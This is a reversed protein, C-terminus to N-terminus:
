TSQETTVVAVGPKAHPGDGGVAPYQSSKPPPAYQLYSSSTADWYVTVPGDWYEYGPQYTKVQNNFGGSVTYCQAVIYKVGAVGTTPLQGFTQVSVVQQPKPTDDYLQNIGYYFKYTETKSGDPLVVYAYLTTDQTIVIYNGDFWTFNTGDTSYYCQYNGAGRQTIELTVNVRSVYTAQNPHPVVMSTTPIEFTDPLINNVTVSASTSGAVIQVGSSSNVLIFSVSYSGTNNFVHTFTKSGSTSTVTGLDITDADIGNVKVVIQYKDNVTLGTYNLTFDQSDGQVITVNDPSVTINEDGIYLEFQTEAIGGTTNDTGNYLYASFLETGATGAIMTEIITATTDTAQFSAEKTNADSIYYFYNNGPTLGSINLTVTIPSSPRAPNPTVTLNLTYAM